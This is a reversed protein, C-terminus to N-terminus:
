QGIDLIYVRGAQLPQNLEEIWDCLAASLAREPCYECMDDVICVGSTSNCMTICSLNWNNNVM